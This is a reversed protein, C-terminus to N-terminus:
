LLKNQEKCRTCFLLLDEVLYITDDNYLGRFACALWKKVMGAVVAKQPRHNILEKMLYPWDNPTRADVTLGHGGYIATGLLMVPKGMMIAEFGVTSNVTVVADVMPLAECMRFSSEMLYVDQLKGIDRM